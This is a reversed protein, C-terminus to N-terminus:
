PNTSPSRTPGQAHRVAEEQTQRGNGGAGEFLPMVRQRLSAQAQELRAELTNVVRVRRDRTHAEVGGDTHLDFVCEADLALAHVLTEDRPDAHVVVDGELQSLAERLLAQLIGAYEASARLEALRARAGALAEALLQERAENTSRLAALRARNLRRASTHQAPIVMERLHRERIAQADREADERIQALVTRNQAQIRDAQADADADMAKLIDALPM